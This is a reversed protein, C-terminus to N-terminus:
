LESKASKAIQRILQANSPGTADVLESFLGKKDLLSIPTDYEELMGDKLVLVRDFDAITNLRHAICLITTNRFHSKISSQIMKDALNDVSATAEDMILIKPKVLIARGLCILQRQGVSLNSGNEEVESELKEESKSVYDKLGILALVEWIDEDSYEGEVDLNSRITGSFLVPDQPIIQLRKRLTELGLISIDIGDIRISGKHLELIRFLALMLTSKGSGTRGVIGVKEGPQVTFTLDKLVFQDPRSPYSLTIREIEIQGRLPWSGTDPDKPNLFSAEQPLDDCYVALREVSNLETELQSSMILFFALGGTFGIAYTLALGMLSPSIAKLLGLLALLLVVLTSLSEMRINIWISASQRLFTPCNADDILKREKDVFSNEVNYAKVTTIGSLTESIHAYLPSKFTSEYRKLERNSRQYLIIMILYFTLLPVLLLVMRWEVYVLLATSSILGSAAITTLFAILWINQDVSEVDKSLRNLIRGIPQSDFFGMPAKILRSVAKRHFLKAAKYAGFLFGANLLM